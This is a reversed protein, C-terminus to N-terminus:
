LGPRVLERDLRELELTRRDEGWGFLECLEPALSRALPPDEWLDTRRVVLDALHVVSETAMLDQLGALMDLRAQPDRADAGATCWGTRAATRPMVAPPSQTGYIRDLTNVAVDRATTFKVGFVTYLGDPGGAKRHDEIHPRVSLEASGTRRAPLLGSFVHRIGDTALDLGPIAANVDDLMAVLQQTTPTVDGPQGDWPVHGTGILLRGKWPHLFYTSAGPRDPTIALASESLAPENMWINWALSPRFRAGDRAGFASDTQDSWPGTSNVAVPAAFELTKNGARDIAAVGTVRGSECRLGTAEVYNLVDAGGAAADGLLEMVIRQSDAIAADYWLAGGQLGNADVRPFRALVEDPGIVRGRPLRDPEAVGDNRAFSLMDNMALAVRLVSKTKLGHGYLPMLCPLPRAFEPFTTLFWRRERVSEAFRPMDLTQLYRLGGHIIRLSNFSTRGGFDDRELLLPKLKRAAAQAALM